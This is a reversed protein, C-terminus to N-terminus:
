PRPGSNKRARVIAADVEKILDEAKDRIRQLDEISLNADKLRETADSLKDAAENFTEKVSPTNNNDANNKKLARNKIRDDANKKRIEENTLGDSGTSSSTTKKGDGARKEFFDFLDGETVPKKTKVEGFAESYSQSKGTNGTSSINELGQHGYKDYTARKGTDTLVAHAETALQFKEAAEKKDADSKGRLRDPHYKLSAGRYAKKIEEVSATKAVGLVEYYDPKKSM